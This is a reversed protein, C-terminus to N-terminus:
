TKRRQAANSPGHKSKSQEVTSRFHDPPFNFDASPMRTERWGFPMHRSCFRIGHRVALYILFCLDLLMGVVVENPARLACASLGLLSIILITVFVPALSLADELLTTEAFQLQTLYNVKSRVKSMYPKVRDSQKRSEREVIIEWLELPNLLQDAGIDVGTSTLYKLFDRTADKRDSVKMQHFFLLIAVFFAVLGAFGQFVTSFIYYPGQPDLVPLSMNAPFRLNPVRSRVIQWLPGAHQLVLPILFLLALTLYIRHRAKKQDINCGLSSVLRMKFYEIPDIEPQNEVDSTRYLHMFDLSMLDGM